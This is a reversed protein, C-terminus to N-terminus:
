QIVHLDKWTPMSYNSDVRIGGVRSGHLLTVAQYGTVIVPYYDTMIAKDLAGWAAPQDEFPLQHIAEIKTDIAPEAFQAWNNESDSRFLHPTWSGGSPWESCWGSVRLNIPADPDSNLTFVDEERAVGRPSAKFGATELAEVFLDAREVSLPDSKNYPFELEYEGPSFGARQLLAKAKDPDTVGPETELVSYDQRGPFNPPLVSAGSPASRNEYM